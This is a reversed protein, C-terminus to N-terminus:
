FIAIARTPAGDAEDIRIPLCLFTFENKIIAALNTLNEIIILNHKFLAQHVQMNPSDVPDVSIMDIGIGKLNFECIWEAAEESLVPYETFYKESGWNESWGSYFLVFDTNQLKDKFPLLARKEITTNQLGYVDIIFGEGVFNDVNMKDLTLAGECMHAPADVHTGTHSFLTIKKELFGDKEISVPIDFVPPETGPYVPMEPSITHSLDIVTM